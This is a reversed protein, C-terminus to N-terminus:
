RSAQVATDGDDPAPPAGMVNDTGTAPQPGAAPDTGQGTGQDGAQGTGGDVADKRAQEQVKEADRAEQTENARTNRQTSHLNEAAKPAALTAFVEGARNDKDELHTAVQLLKEQYDKVDQEVGKLTDEYIQKATAYVSGFEKCSDIGSFSDADLTTGVVKSRSGTARETWAAGRNNALTRIIEFDAKLKGNTFRYGQAQQRDEDPLAM